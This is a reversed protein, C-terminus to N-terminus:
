SPAKTRRLYSLLDQHVSKVANEIAEQRLQPLYQARFGVKPVQVKAGGTLFSLMKGRENSIAIRIECEIEIYRGRVVRDLKTISLDISHHALSLAEAEGPSMTVDQRARLEALMYGRMSNARSKREKVTAQEKSEDAASRVAVFLTPEPGIRTAQKGFGARSTRRTTAPTATPAAVQTRSAVKNRISALAETARKRVLSDKDRTAQQLAPLASGDGLHGLATAAVARVVRSDDRLGHVLAKLARADKMRGLSVAASIRAKANKSHVLTRSLSHVQDARATGLSMALVVVITVLGTRFVASLTMQRNM